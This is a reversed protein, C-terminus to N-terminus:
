PKNRWPPTWPKIRGEWLSVNNEECSYEILEGKSLTFIRENKWPKNYVKPDEITITYAIHEADTRRFTQVLHLSASHPHGVTDLRTYGNFGVTDVVLTDGDWRGISHGFWTPNLDDGQPHSRGDTPVVHFWTSQEFLLAVYKDNQMIQLPYPSNISRTLGFPMCSGTYDGNAADYSKWDALGSPTFPLDAFGQQDRGNRTMDPVYPREWIGNLDPKGSPLRPASGPAASPAVAPNRQAELSAPAFLGLSALAAAIVSNLAIKM